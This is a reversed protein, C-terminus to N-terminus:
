TSRSPSLTVLVSSSGTTNTGSMPRYPKPSSQALAPVGRADLTALSTFEAHSMVMAVVRVVWEVSVVMPGGIFAGAHDLALGVDFALSGDVGAIHRGCRAALHVDVGAGAVNVRHRWPGTRQVPRPADQREDEANEGHQDAQPDQQKEENRVLLIGDDVEHVPHGFREDCREASDEAEVGHRGTAAAHEVDRGDDRQDAPQQDVQKEHRDKAQSIAVADGDLEVSRHAGGPSTRSPRKEYRHCRWPAASPPGLRAPATLSSCAPVPWSKTTCRNSASSRRTSASGISSPAM